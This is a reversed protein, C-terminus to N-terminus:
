QVDNFDVPSNPLWVSFEAGGEPLNLVTLTGGHSEVVSRALHLGMGSGAQQASGRGRFFKDFIRTLEEPPIGSGNDSVLFEIGNDHAPRCSLRIESGAPTYKVANDVLVRLVLRLMDPDCLIADPMEAEVMSFLYASSLATASSIADNLLIKPSAFKLHLGRGAKGLHDQTLYQDLLATLRDVAGQINAYRKRVAEGIEGRASALRQIAGDITALPTRFEHSVMSIFREQEEQAKRRETIDRSVGVVEVARGKDDRVISITDETWVTYGNKSRVELELVSKAVKSHAILYSAAEKLMEVSAPALMDDLSRAAAEEPTFGTLRRVSPSAYSIRQDSLDYKWLVDQANDTIIRHREESLRLAGSLRAFRYATVGLIGGLLLAAGLWRYLWTLDRQPNPDYLFGEFSFDRPLMGIDAYTDAIHRWRGPNMYGVEILEPHILAMTQRAEFQIYDRTLRKTYKALILEIIEEPHDMAYKWGRLSAARFAKVREPHAKLEQESTFLNDGYFDIGASRPTYTQYSFHARDLYYPENTVYSAMADAKGAILDQADFSHKVQTIRDLPINERKLYALLEDSQPELMVRKGILDHIGQTATQQRAILVYASHQFIVALVVLPKGAKRQLLLSSTGVGFEAKGELVEKVPDVDPLSERISVDLGAERYYGLEKAAYYGAFQFAHTWKLQLTVQELAHAPLSCLFFLVPLFRLLPHLMRYQPCSDM